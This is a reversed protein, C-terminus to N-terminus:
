FNAKANTSNWSDHVWDKRNKNFGAFFSYMSKERKLQSIYLLSEWEQAENEEKKLLIRLHQRERVRSLECYYCYTYYKASISRWYWTNLFWSYPVAIKFQRCYIDVNNNGRRRFPGVLLQVSTSGTGSPLGDAFRVYVLTCGCARQNITAAGM